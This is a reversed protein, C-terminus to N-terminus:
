VAPTRDPSAQHVAVCVAVSRRRRRVRAPSHDATLVGVTNASVVTAIALWEAWGLFQGLVVWGVLSALVPNVSM